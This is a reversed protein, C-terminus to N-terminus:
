LRKFHTKHSEVFQVAVISYRSERHRVPVPHLARFIEYQRGLTGVSFNAGDSVYSPELARKKAARRRKALRRTIRRVNRGEVRVRPSCMFIGVDDRFNHM